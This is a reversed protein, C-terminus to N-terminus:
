NRTDNHSDRIKQQKIIQVFICLYQRMRFNSAYDVNHLM